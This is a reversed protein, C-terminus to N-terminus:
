TIIPGHDFLSLHFFPTTSIKSTFRCGAPELSLTGGVAPQFLCRVFWKTFLLKLIHVMEPLFQKVIDVIPPQGKANIDFM